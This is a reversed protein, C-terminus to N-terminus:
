CQACGGVWVYALGAQSLDPLPPGPERIIAGSKALPKAQVSQPRLIM